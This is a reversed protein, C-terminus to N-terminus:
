PFHEVIKTGPSKLGLLGLRINQEVCHKSSCQRCFSNRYRSFVRAWSTASLVALEAVGGAIFAHALIYGNLSILVNTKVLFDESSQGPCM